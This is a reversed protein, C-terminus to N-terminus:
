SSTSAGPRQAARGRTGAPAKWVGREGDTRAYIGPWRAAPARRQAPPQRQAPRPHPGAPLVRRRQPPPPQREEVYDISEQVENTDEPVDVILFARESECFAQAEAYVAAADVGARVAGPLVLLNFLDVDRLAYMGTKADFSGTLAAEDPLSGNAGAVGGEQYPLTTATSGLRYQQVNATGDVLRLDTDSFTLITDPDFDARTEGGAAVHLAGNQVTVRAGSLYPDGADRGAQRLGQELAARIKSAGTAFTTAEALGTLTVTHTGTVSTVDVASDEDFEVESVILAGTTGTQAPRGVAASGPPALQVLKSGDNVMSLVYDSSAPNTSCNAFVESRLVVQRGDVSAVESVTLNFLSGLSPDRTAYDVQLRLNDGWTGPDPVSVGRLQRGAFVRLAPGPAAAADRLTLEAAAAAPAAASAVRVVWATAGGNLFFQQIAYGTEDDPHLGGFEREFDGINFIRVATDLPGRHFYGVFATVSTSVGTITRVGSPIEEIYVGPYTPTVPM